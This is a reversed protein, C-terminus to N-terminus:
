RASVPRDGRQDVVRAGGRILDGVVADGLEGYLQAGAV